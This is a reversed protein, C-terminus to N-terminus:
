AILRDILLPSPSPEALSATIFLCDLNALPPRILHNKRPYVATVTGQGGGDTVVAARDGVFPKIGEKRFIGRARCEIIKGGHEAYYFGSLSKVILANEILM